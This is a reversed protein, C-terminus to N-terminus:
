SGRYTSYGFPNILLPVHYHSKDFVTFDICVRPYFGKFGYLKFYDETNFVMQYNGKELFVGPPLLDPVRGDANTVGMSKTLWQNNKFEKLQVQIYRGPFGKSTDLVHTTIHSVVNWIEHKLKMLKNLRILTIKFQEGMAVNIEEEKSHMLRYTLLDLMEDASKGTACVIFIFGNKKEYAKNKEALEQITEKTAEEVRGQEKSAWNSTSAFKETLSKVDGIKPHHTFAELYDKPKCEEYWIERAHNYLQLENKFPFHSMMKNVWKKSGCCNFLAEKAQKKTQGNFEKLSQM